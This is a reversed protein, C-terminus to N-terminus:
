TPEEADEPVEVEVTLRIYKVPQPDCWFSMSDDAPAYHPMPHHAPRQCQMGNFRSPCQPEDPHVFMGGYKIYDVENDFGDFAFKRLLKGLDIQQFYKEWAKKAKELKSM